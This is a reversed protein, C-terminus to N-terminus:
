RRLPMSDQLSCHMNRLIADRRRVTPINDAGVRGTTQCSTLGATWTYKPQNVSPLISGRLGNELDAWGKTQLDIFDFVLHKSVKSKRKRCPVCASQVCRRKSGKNSEVQQADGDDPQTAAAGRAM